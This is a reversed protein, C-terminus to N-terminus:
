VTMAKFMEITLQGHGASVAVFEADPDYNAIADVLKEGFVDPFESKELLAFMQDWQFFQSGSSDYFHVGRVGRHKAFSHMLHPSIGM